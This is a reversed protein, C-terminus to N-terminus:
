WRLLAAMGDMERLLKQEAKGRVFELRTGFATSFDWVYDRIAVKEPQGCIIKATEETAAIFNEEKCYWAEAQLSWPLIWVQVRGAQLTDLVADTGWLGQEKTQELLKLEANREVEELVPFVSEEFDKKTLATSNLPRAIRAVIRNRSGRSMYNEFYNVQWKEGMLIVREIGLDNIAKDILQSLRKYQKHLLSDIRASAKEKPSLQDYRGGPRSGRKEFAENVKLSTNRLEEWEEERIDSFVQKDERIEGLFIEFFQWGMGALHLIGTREYEDAAFLLPMLYPKGYRVEIGEKASTILPLEIQLELSETILGSNTMTAFLTLTRAKPRETELLKLIKEQLISFTKNNQHRSIEKLSSKIRTFWAKGTNEPKAPNVDCYISLVPNQLEEFKERITEIRKEFELMVRLHYGHDFFCTM